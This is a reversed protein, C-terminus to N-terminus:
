LKAIKFKVVPWVGEVGGIKFQNLILFIGKGGRCGNIFFLKPKRKLEQVDCVSGVLDAILMGHGYDDAPRLIGDKNGHAIIHVALMSMGEHTSEQRLWDRIERM